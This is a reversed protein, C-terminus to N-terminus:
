KLKTKLKKDSPKNDKEEQREKKMERKAEAGRRENEEMDKLTVKSDLSHREVKARLEAPDADKVKKLIFDDYDISGAAFYGYLMVRGLKPSFRTHRPTFEQSYQVWKGANAIEKPNDPGSVSHQQHNQQSRYVERTQQGLKDTFGEKLADATPKFNTDILDYCKVFVIGSIGKSQRYRYDIRYTAGEEIPFPKSYYMLGFGTAIGDDFETHLYHNSSKDPDPVVKVLRGIPERHQACRSEWGVPIGNKVKEFDGGEMLNPNKEWNADM